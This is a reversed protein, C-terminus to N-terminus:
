VFRSSLAMAVALGDGEVSELLDGLNGTAFDVEFDDLTTWFCRLFEGFVAGERLIEGTHDFLTIPGGTVRM